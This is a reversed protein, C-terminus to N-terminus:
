PRYERRSQSHDLSSPIPAAPHNPDAAKLAVGLVHIATAAVLGIAALVRVPRSRPRERGPDTQM